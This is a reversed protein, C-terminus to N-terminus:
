FELSYNAPRVKVMDVYCKTPHRVVQANLDKPAFTESVRWDRAMFFCWLDCGNYASSMVQRHSEARLVADDDVVNDNLSVDYIRTHIM